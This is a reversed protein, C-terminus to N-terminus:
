ETIADEPTGLVRYRQKYLGKTLFFNGFRRNNEKVDFQAAIEGDDLAVYFGSPFKDGQISQGQM